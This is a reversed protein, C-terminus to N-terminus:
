FGASIGFAAFPRKFHVAEPHSTEISVLRCVLGELHRMAEKAIASHTVIVLGSRSLIPCLSGGALDVGRWVPESGDDSVLTARMTAGENTDTIWASWAQRPWAKLLPRLWRIIAEAERVSACAAIVIAALKSVHYTM